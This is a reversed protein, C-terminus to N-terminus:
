RLDVSNYGLGIISIDIINITGNADFDALPSYCAQTSSCSYRLAVFAFDNIDVVGNANIDLQRSLMTGASLTLGSLQVTIDSSLPYTLVAVNLLFRLVLTSTSFPKLLLTPVIYTKRFLPAGTSVNVASVTLLGSVTKSRTDLTVTGNTTVKSSDLSLTSSISSPIQAPIVGFTGFMAIPHVSCRYTWNGAKPINVGIVPSFTFNLFTTTSSFFGSFTATENADVINNNNFDLFWSHLVGDDSFLLLTVTDGSTVSIVPGPMTRNWGLFSNGRLTFTSHVPGTSSPSVSSHVPATKLNYLPLGILPSAALIVLAASALLSRGIQLM